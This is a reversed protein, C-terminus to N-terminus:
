ILISDSDVSQPPLKTFVKKEIFFFITIQLFFIYLILFANSGDVGAFLFNNPPCFYTMPVSVHLIIAWSIAFNTIQSSFIYTSIKSMM